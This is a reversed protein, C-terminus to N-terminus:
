RGPMIGQTAALFGFEGCLGILTLITGVYLPLSISNFAMGTIGGAIIAASIICGLIGAATKARGKETKYERFINIPVTVFGVIAVLGFCLRICIDVLVHM